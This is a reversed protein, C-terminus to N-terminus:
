SQISKMSLRDASQGEDHVLLKRMLVEAGNFQSVVIGDPALARAVARSVRQVQDAVASLDKRAMSLLDRSGAKPIVLCHGRAQPFADMFALTRASEAIVAAEVEGALIKAFVNDPDYSADASLTMVREYARWGAM